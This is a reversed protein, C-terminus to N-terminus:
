LFDGFYLAGTKGFKIQLAVSLLFYICNNIERLFMKCYKELSCRAINRLPVNRLIEREAPAVCM